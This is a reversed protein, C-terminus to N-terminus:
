EDEANAPSPTRSREAEAEAPPNSIVVADESIAEDEIDSDDDFDIEVYSRERSFALDDGDLADGVPETSPAPEPEIPAPAQAASTPEGFHAVEPQAAPEESVESVESVEAHGQPPTSAVASLSLDFDEEDEDDDDGFDIMIPPASPEPAPEQLADLPELADAAEGEAVSVEEQSPEDPASVEARPAPAPAPAAVPASPPVPTSVSVPEPEDVLSPEDIVPAEAQNINQPEELELERMHELFLQAVELTQGVKQGLLAFQSMQANLDAAQM